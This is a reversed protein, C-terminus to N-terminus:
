HGPAAPAAAPAAANSPASGAVPAAHAPAPAPKPQILDGMKELPFTESKFNVRVKGGLKAHLDVKAESDETQHTSVSFKATDSYSYDPSFWGGGSESYDMQQDYQTARDYHRAVKDRTDLSFTCSADITGDTVVLRNIGMLVMTALLQQRDMAM